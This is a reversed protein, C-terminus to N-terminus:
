TRYEYGDAQHVTRLYKPHLDFKQAPLQLVFSPRFRIAIRGVYSGAFKGSPIDGKVIDGTQFGQFFKSSPAHAKPFGYKDPRCRQRTGHGKAIM